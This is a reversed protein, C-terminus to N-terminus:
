EIMRLSDKASEGVSDSTNEEVSDLWVLCLGIGDFNGAVLAIWVLGIWVLRNVCLWVLEILDLKVWGLEVWGLGVWGM